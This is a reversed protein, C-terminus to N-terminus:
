NLKLLITNYVFPIAKVQKVLSSDFDSDMELTMIALGGKEERNLRFNCINANGAAVLNTVHAIIGPVDQHMVILTTKQGTFYVEMDNVKTIVINGGGISAGQVSITKGKESTLTILATNPHANEITGTRFMIEIGMKEATEISTRIGPDWPDLKLIGGVIAKDTGHGRYTKAFSGHFLIDAKAIPAGLLMAATKGIRAAGATHSSSPGIMVPGVIDFVNM